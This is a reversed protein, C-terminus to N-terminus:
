NSVLYIGRLGTTKEHSEMVNKLYQIRIGTQTTQWEARNMQRAVKKQATELEGLRQYLRFDLYLWQVLLLFILGAILFFFKKM